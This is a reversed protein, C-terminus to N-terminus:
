KKPSILEQIFEQIQDLISASKAEKSVVNKSVQSRQNESIGSSTDQTTGLIINKAPAYSGTINISTTGDSIAQVVLDIQKGQPNLYSDFDSTRANNLTILWSGNERVYSSLPTGGQINLYVLADTPVTKASTLVKGYASQPLPPTDNTTPATTVQYPQGNNDYLRAGSGIQFYYIKSPDLDKVTVHHTRRVTDTDRDDKAVNGISESEGYSVYGVSLKDPTIWSVAFSNDSVNTIKVEKPEGETGANSKTRKESLVLISGVIVGIILITLLLLNKLSLKNM